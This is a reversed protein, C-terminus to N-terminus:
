IGKEWIYWCYCVASSKFDEFRGNKACNLRSSSVYTKKPPNTKFFEKRAKGELFQVKLFMAIKSGTEVVEISKKVFELATRYPPNTIIDGKWKGTFNLFDIRKNIKYQREVIDTLWDLYVRTKKYDKLDSEGDKKGARTLYKM